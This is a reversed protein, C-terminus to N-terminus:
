VKVLERKINEPSLRLLEMLRSFDYEMHNLEDELYTDSNLIFKVIGIEFNRKKPVSTKGLEGIGEIYINGIDVSYKCDGVTLGNPINNVLQSFSSYSITINHVYENYVFSMKKTLEFMNVSSVHIDKYYLAIYKIDSLKEIDQIRPTSSVLYMKNNGQENTFMFVNDYKIDHSIINKVASPIDANKVLRFNTFSPCGNMIDEDKVYLRTILPFITKPFLENRQSKSLIEMSYLGSNDNGGEQVDYTRNIYLSYIDMNPDYMLIYVNQKRTLEDFPINRHKDIIYSNFRNFNYSNRDIDLNYVLITIDYVLHILFIDVYHTRSIDNIYDLISMNETYITLNRMTVNTYLNNSIVKHQNKHVWRNVTNKLENAIQIEHPNNFNLYTSNKAYQFQHLMCMFPTLYNYETDINFKKINDSQYEIHSPIM